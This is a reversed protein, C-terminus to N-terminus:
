PSASTSTTRDNMYMTGTLANEPRGGDAPPASAPSRALHRDLDASAPRDQRQGQDGQLLGPHPLAHTSGDISNEWRTKWFVENGSFFALNVGADRAAEVNARQGGSWYEDHGVSMFVKHNLILNGYRDTDVDTFYSVDYGNAGALPGDPVRRAAALQLRRPRRQRTSTFPRNYSVKYARGDAARGHTSATAAGTTTPRGPPTPPRSCCTRPATTTASSSTSTAPAAPTTARRAPRHLHGLRRRRARGLIRVGGLQRCDVLGTATDTLPPRSSRRCLAPVLTITTSWAPATAGTTASAPLHRHPVARQGHRQDQLHDDPRANVSIDTAFGQISADGAGNVGWREAAHGPLQNEAVIGNSPVIRDELSELCLRVVRHAKPPTRPAAPALTSKERLPEETLSSSLSNM